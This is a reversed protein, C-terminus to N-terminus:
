TGELPVRRRTVDRVTGDVTTSLTSAVQDRDHNITIALLGAREGDRVYIVHADTTKGLAPNNRGGDRSCDRRRRAHSLTERRDFRSGLDACRSRTRDRQM